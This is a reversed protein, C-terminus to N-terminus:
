DKTFNFTILISPKHKLIRWKYLYKNVFGKKAQSVIKSQNYNLRYSSRLPDLPPRPNKSQLFIRGSNSDQRNWKFIKGNFEVDFTAGNTIGHSDLMGLNDLIEITYPATKQYRCHCFDIKVYPHDGNLRHITNGDYDHYIQFVCAKCKLSKLDIEWDPKPENVIVMLEPPNAAVMKKLYTLDLDKRQTQMYVAHEDTYNCNYFTRIQEVVHSKQHKGLEVEIIYWESYDNKVMALDPKNKQTPNTADVLTKKFLFAKYDPFIIELNQIISRELEEELYYSRPAVEHYWIDNSDIVKAM